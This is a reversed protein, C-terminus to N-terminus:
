QKRRVKGGDDVENHAVDKEREHREDEESGRDQIQAGAFTKPLAMISVMASTVIQAPSNM